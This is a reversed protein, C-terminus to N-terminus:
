LQLMYNQPTCCTQQHKCGSHESSANCNPPLAGTIITSETNLLLWFLRPTPCWWYSSSCHRDQEQMFGQHVEQTSPAIIRTDSPPYVPWCTQLPFLHARSELERLWVATYVQQIHSEHLLFAWAKEQKKNGSKPSLVPSFHSDSEHSYKKHQQM